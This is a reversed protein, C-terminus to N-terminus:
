ANAHHLYLGSGVCVRGVDDPSRRQDPIHSARDPRAARGSLQGARALQRGARGGRRLLAMHAACNTPARTSRPHRARTRSDAQPLGTQFALYPSVAWLAIVPLAWICSARECWCSRWLRHGAAVVPATWMRRFVQAPDAKLRAAADAATEWELLHRRSRLRMSRGSSPTSWSSRSIRSFRATCCFRICARPSITASRNPSSRAAARRARPEHVDTGVARVRSLVPGSVGRRDVLSPGGPLVMWGAALLVMLAPPLLSRRLNDAIKWRAIAPLVNRGRAGGCGAGEGCGRCAAALRRAGMPAAACGMDPLPQSLRRDSRSRHVARRARVIRRVPRPQAARQGPHPRRAGSSRTSTTFARASTAARALCIRTCM